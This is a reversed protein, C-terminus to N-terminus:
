FSLKELFPGRSQPECARPRPVDATPVRATRASASTAGFAPTDSVPPPFYPCRGASRCVPELWGARPPAWSSRWSQSLRLRRPAVACSAARVRHDRRHHRPYTTTSRPVSATGPQMLQTVVRTEPATTAARATRSCAACAAAHRPRPATLTPPLAADCRTADRRTPDPRTADRPIADCPMADDCRM